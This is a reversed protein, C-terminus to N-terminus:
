PNWQSHILNSIDPFCISSSTWDAVEYVLGFDSGSVSVLLLIYITKLGISYILDGVTLSCFTFSM